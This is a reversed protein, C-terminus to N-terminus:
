REARMNNSVIVCCKCTDHIAFNLFLYIPCHCQSTKMLNAIVQEITPKYATRLTGGLNGGREGAYEPIRLHPVSLCSFTVHPFQRRRRGMLWQDYHIAFFTISTKLPTQKNTQKHTLVVGIVGSRTFMPHHFKPPLHMTCFDRGLEFKHTM